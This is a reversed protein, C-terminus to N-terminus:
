LFIGFIQEHDMYHTHSTSDLVLQFHLHARGLSLRRHARSVICTIELNQDSAPGAGRAVDPARLSVHHFHPVLLM